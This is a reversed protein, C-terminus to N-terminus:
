DKLPPFLIHDWTPLAAKFPASDLKQVQLDRDLADDYFWMAKGKRKKPEDLTSIVM